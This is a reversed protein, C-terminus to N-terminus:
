RQWPPGPLRRLIVGEDIGKQTIVVNAGTAAIKEVMEKLLRTEEELFRDLQEIDTVRIKTTIDPKQIELPADLVLVRILKSDLLSGGKKKEIKVLDLDVNYGGDPKKQAIIRIAEVVM